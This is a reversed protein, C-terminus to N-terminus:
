DKVSGSPVGSVANQDPIPSAIYVTISNITIGSRTDSQVREPANQESVRSTTDVSPISMGSVTNKTTSLTQFVQINYQPRLSDIYAHYAELQKDHDDKAGGTYHNDMFDKFLKSSSLTVQASPAAYQKIYEDESLGTGRIQEM